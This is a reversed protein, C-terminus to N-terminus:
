ALDWLLRYYATREPDPDIGYADLLTREFGPGYNWETSWTAIAIDAWRDAVGLRGMDVHGSWRGAADIITNPACADGHCVVPDDEPPPHELISLVEGVDLQRHDPHWQGPATEASELRARAESLRDALSWTFPCGAVPATDHLHRLGVGIAAVAELPRQMWRDGVASEGDVPATILWTGAADGGAAIVRPVPDFPAVWGLRVEEARMDLGSGAPAWKVFCREDGAGVEFTLGGAENEWVCRSARGAALEAVADPPDVETAPPGVLM